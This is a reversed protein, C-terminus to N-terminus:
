NQISVRINVGGDLRTTSPRQSKESSLKEYTMTFDASVRNSITYSIRPSVNIRSSRKLQNRNSGQKLANGIDYQYPGSQAAEGLANELRYRSNDNLAYSASVSFQITNNLREIPL